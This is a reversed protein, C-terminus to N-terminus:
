VATAPASPPQAASVAAAKLADDAMRFYLDELDRAFRKMDFLPAMKRTAVLRERLGALRSRDRYLELVLRAYGADDVAILEPLGAATLLSAGVRAAFSDGLKAVLPVGVWLADAGTSHSNYPSTDLALDALQLRALHEEQSDVRSALVLRKADIGRREVEHRLNAAVADNHHPLWLVADPMEALLSCWLDFLPPNFKYSNNLSCLVFADAPLGQSQKTPSPGIVRTSDLPMCSHPMHAIAEIYADQVSHPMAVPDGILYDALKPHGLTGAYGLWNVQIPACRIALAEVRGNATWGTLDVLIDIGDDRIRQATAHVSTPAVDVFHEFAQELRRRMASGDSENTSYGFVEVRSRDHREIVEAIASGVAHDRFDGSMYAIRLRRSSPLWNLSLPNPAELYGQSITEAAYNRAIAAHDQESIGPMPLALGANGMPLRFDASVQRLKSIGDMVEAWDCRRLDIHILGCLLSPDDPQSTRLARCCASAEDWRQGNILAPVLIHMAEVYDGPHTEIARLLAVVAETWRGMRFWAYGLNKHIEPDQPSLRSAESFSFISEDWRMLMSLAIGRNNHLEGDAPTLRLAQDAIRLVEEDSGGLAVLAFSLAKLALAHRGNRALIGRATKEVEAYRRTEVLRMLNATDQDAAGRVSGGKGIVKM